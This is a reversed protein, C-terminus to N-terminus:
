DHSGPMHRRQIYPRYRYANLGIVVAICLIIARPRLPEDPSQPTLKTAAALAPTALSVALLGAYLYKKM